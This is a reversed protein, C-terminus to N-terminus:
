AKVVLGVLRYPRPLSAETVSGIGVPWRSPTSSMWLWSHILFKTLEKFGARHGPSHLPRQEGRGYEAVSTLSFWCQHPYNLGDQDSPGCIRAPPLLFLLSPNCRRVVQSVPGSDPPRCLELPYGISWYPALSRVSLSALVASIADLRCSPLVSTSLPKLFKKFM